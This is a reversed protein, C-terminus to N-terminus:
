CSDLPPNPRPPPSLVIHKWTELLMRRNAGILPNEGMVTRVDMKLELLYKYIDCKYRAADEPSLRRTQSNTNATRVANSLAGASVKWETGLIARTFLGDSQHLQFFFKKDDSRVFDPFNQLLYIELDLMVARANRTGGGEGRIIDMIVNRPRSTEVSIHYMYQGNEDWDIMLLVTAQSLMQRMVARTSSLGEIVGSLSQQQVAPQPGHEPAPGVLNSEEDLLKDDGVKRAKM